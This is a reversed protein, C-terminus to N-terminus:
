GALQSPNRNSLTADWRATLFKCPYHTKDSIWAKFQTNKSQINLGTEGTLLPRRQNPMTNLVDLASANFIRDQRDRYAAKVSLTFSATDAFALSLRRVQLRGRLDALMAGKGDRPVFPPSFEYECYFPEGFIVKRQTWNGPYRCTAVSLGDAEIKAVVLGQDGQPDENAVVFIGKANMPQTFGPDSYVNWRTRDTAPDYTAKVRPALGERAFSSAQRDLYFTYTSEDILSTPSMRESYFGQSVNSSFHEVILHVNTEICHVAHIKSEAALEWVSWSQMVREPAGGQGTSWYWCYVHIRNRKELDLLLYLAESDSAATHYVSAPILEPVLGTVFTELSLNVGASATDTRAKPFYERVQTFSQSEYTYFVSQGVQSPKVKPDVPITGVMTLEATSPTLVDGTASYYRWQSSIGFIIVETDLAIASHLEIGADAVAQRGIPDDDLAELSTQGFLAFYDGPRSSCVGGPTLFGLRDSFFFLDRIPQNELIPFPNSEDGGVIREAWVLEKFVKQEEATFTQGAPATGDLKKFWFKYNGPTGTRVVAHPMTAADMAYASGPDRTEQWTGTGWTAGDATVFKLWRNLGVGDQSEYSLRVIFGNRSYTPLMSLNGVVGRLCVISQTQSVTTGQGGSSTISYQTAPNPHEVYIIGDYVGSIWGGTMFSKFGGTPTVDSGGNYLKDAVLSQSIPSGSSAPPTTYSASYSTGGTTLTITYTTAFNVSRVWWEGANPAAPATVSSRRAIKESNAVLLVDQYPLVRFAARPNTASLYSAMAGGVDTVTMSGVYLDSVKVSGNSFAANYIDTSARHWAYHYTNEAYFGAAGLKCLTRTPPRKILGDSRSSLFNLQNQAQSPLRMQPSQQSIGQLLNPIQISLQEQPM